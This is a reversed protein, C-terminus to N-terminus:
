RQPTQPECFQTVAATCPPGVTAGRLCSQLAPRASDRSGEGGSGGSGISASGGDGGGGGSGLKEGLGTWSLHEEVIDSIGIFSRRPGVEIAKVSSSSSSLSSDNASTSPAGSSTAGVAPGVVSSFFPPTSKISRIEYNSSPPTSKTPPSSHRLEPPASYHIEHSFPSFCHHKKEKLDSKPFFSFSGFSLIIFSFLQSLM